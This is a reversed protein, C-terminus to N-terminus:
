WRMQADLDSQRQTVWHEGKPGREKKWFPAKTKLFDMVFECADFAEARHQCAVGVFVIQDAPQLEGVRHYVNIAQLQWRESAQLAIAKIAKETMGPYHELKLCDVPQNLNTDRVYGVFTVVGGVTKSVQQLRRIQEAACFDKAAVTISIQTAAM